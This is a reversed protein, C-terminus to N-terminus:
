LSALMRSRNVRVILVLELYCFLRHLLQRSYIMVSYAHAPAESVPCQHLHCCSWWLAWRVDAGLAIGGLNYSVVSSLHADVTGLSLLAIARAIGADVVQEPLELVALLCLVCHLTQM